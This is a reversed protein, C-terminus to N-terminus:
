SKGRVKPGGRQPQRLAAVTPIQEVPVHDMYLAIAREVLKRLTAGPPGADVIVPSPIDDPPIYWVSHGSATTLRRVGLVVNEQAQVRAYEARENRSRALTWSRSATAM